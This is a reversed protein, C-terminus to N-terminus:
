AGKGDRCALCQGPVEVVAAAPRFGDGDGAGLGLTAVTDALQTESVGHCDNCILFAPQHADGAQACAVFANLMHVRHALGADTLFELARYVTPPQARTGDHGLEELIDYAGMARHDALLIELVRRRLDTLRLGNQACLSEARALADERCTAHDHPSFPDSHTM